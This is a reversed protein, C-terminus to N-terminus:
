RGREKEPWLQQVTSKTIAGDKRLKAIVKEGAIKGYAEIISSKGLSEKEYERVVLYEGNPTVPMVAGKSNVIESKIEARVRGALAEAKKAIDYLVGLRRERALPGTGMPVKVLSVDNATLGQPSLAGGAATLGTLVDGARGLLDADRAPCISQAPCRHCWPGPRMSGDGIRELAGAIRTEYQRLEGLSVRDAYVKPMGRRRAHLVAVIAEESGVARMTAAALSLLQPKDLPRSFDEMEGTKHDEVLIPVKRLDRKSPIIALDLTGPQEGEHLGLYRHDSDHPEITRGSVLPKLAVATEILMAGKKRISDFDLKFENKALWRTLEAHGATVLAKLEDQKDGVGWKKAVQRLSPRRIPVAGSHAMDLLRGAELDHFASGFRAPEGAEARDFTADFAFSCELLLASYSMSSQLSSMGIRSNPGSPASALAPLTHDALPYDDVKKGARLRPARM